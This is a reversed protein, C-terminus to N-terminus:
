ERGAEGPGHDSGGEDEMEEILEVLDTQGECWWDPPLEKKPRPM